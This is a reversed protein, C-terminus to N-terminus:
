LDEMSARVLARRLNSATTEILQAKSIAGSAADEAAVEFVLSGRFTIGQDSSGVSSVMMGDDLASNISSAIAQARAESTQAGRASPTIIPVGCLVVRWADSDPATKEATAVLASTVSRIAAQNITVGLEQLRAKIREVRERTPPHTTFVGWDLGQLSSRRADRALRSMVTLMAVPNYRSRVMYDIGGKDAALELEQSYEMVKAFGVWQFMESVGAINEVTQPDNGSTLIALVTLIQAPLEVKQSQKSRKAQHHECVHVLEHALIAALEDDSQVYDMLGKYVYIFGGPLAFANVDPDDILNFQFQFTPEGSCAAIDKGVKDLREKLPGENVLKVEKALEQAAETGVTIEKQTIESWAPAAAALLLAAGALCSLFSISFTHLRRM